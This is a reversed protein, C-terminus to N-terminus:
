PASETLLSNQRRRLIEEDRFWGRYMDNQIKRCRACIRAGDQRVYSGDPKKLAEGGCACYLKLELSMKHYRKSM